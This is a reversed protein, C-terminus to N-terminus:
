FFVNFEITMENGRFQDRIFNKDKHTFWRHRLHLSARNHFNYDLGLGYGYGTQNVPKGNPDAVPRGKSDTILNGNEDALETRKNGLVRETGFFGVLTIKQHIAYFALFEEYFIRLFAKDTFVPIPSWNEQVSNFSTFNSIILEKGLFRFKYKLELDLTSFSKRYDIVADTIAINEFSRRFISHLRSYPGTFRKYFAFRSRTLGNLRHEFTISNTFPTKTLSDPNAGAIVNARAGNRLDGALNDIEQAAGLGLKTFLKKFNKHAFLNIGQRNNALQGVETVMGDYYFTNYEDPTDLGAKAQEISTNAVASTNNVILAGIRYFSIRLPIFTLEKKTTVELFATEDWERKYRSINEVGPKANKKLGGHYKNSFYSGIGGETYISFKGFDFRGDITTVLQSIRNDEVYFTDAGQAIAKYYVKNDHYGFQNFCSYGIKHDGLTKGLRGAIMNEPDKSLYSQFGGSSTTKGYLIAADFGEPLNTGELIFGQTAQRGFRQDRPIDGISYYSNYRDFDHGEPEWPLREFLDDRYQYGWMTFPSLRYWNAGGGAIMKFKGFRTDVSGQLQFIVFLNAYRGNEDTLYTKRLFKHDFQYEMQFWSKPSPNADLRFLMLPQQYGDGVSLNIPLTLGETPPVNYYEEMNRYFTYVRTFGSYRMAKFWNKAPKKESLGSLAFLQTGSYKNYVITEQLDLSDNADKAYIFPSLFFGCLCLIFINKL